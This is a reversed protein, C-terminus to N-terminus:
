GFHRNIAYLLEEDSWPPVAKMSNWRKLIQWAEQPSKGCDRLICVARVLASSGNQGQISEITMVYAEPNTINRINSQVNATITKNADVVQYNPKKKRNERLPSVKLLPLEQVPLLNGAWRYALGEENRSFPTVAFCGNWRLDYPEGKIKVKNGYVVGKRCRGWCHYGNPTEVITPTDIVNSRVWDLREPDKSDIDLVVLDGGTRVGLNADTGDFLQWLDEESYTRTQWGKFMPVKSYPHLVVIDYGLERLELAQEFNNHDRLIEM